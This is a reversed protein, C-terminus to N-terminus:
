AKAVRVGEPWVGLRKQSKAGHVSVRGVVLASSVM